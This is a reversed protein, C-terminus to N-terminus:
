SLDLGKLSQPQLQVASGSLTVHMTCTKQREVYILRMTCVYLSDMSVGLADIYLYVDMCMYMCVDIFKQYM